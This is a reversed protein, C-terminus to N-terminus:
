LSDAVQNSANFFHVNLQLGRQLKRGEREGEEQLKKGSFHKRNEEVKRGMVEALKSLFLVANRLLSPSKLKENRQQRLVCMKFVSDNLDEILSNM